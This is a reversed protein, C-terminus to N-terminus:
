KLTAKKALKKAYNPDKKGTHPNIVSEVKQKAVYKEGFNKEKLKGEEKLKKKAEIKAQLAEADSNKGGTKPAQHGAKPGKAARAAARERDKDRKNGRSM